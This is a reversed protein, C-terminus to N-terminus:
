PAPDHEHAATAAAPTMSYFSALVLSLAIWILDRARRVLATAVGASPVGTLAGVGILFAGEQTGLGAPIFFTVTRVL